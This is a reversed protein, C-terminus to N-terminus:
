NLIDAEIELYSSGTESDDVRLIQLPEGATLLAHINQQGASIVPQEGPAAGWSAVRSDEIEAHLEIKGAETLRVEIEVTFGVNQYVYSTIPIIEGDPPTSTQFKTVPIPVRSGSMLEVPHGGTQAVLQYTKVPVRAAGDMEGLRITVLINSESVEALTVASVTLALLGAVLLRSVAPRFNHV